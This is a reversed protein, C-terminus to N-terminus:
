LIFVERLLNQISQVTSSKIITGRLKKNIVAHLNHVSTQEKVPINQPIKLILKNTNFM